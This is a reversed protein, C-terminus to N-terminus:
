RARACSSSRPAFAREAAAGRDRGHHDALHRQRHRARYDARRDVDRVDLGGTVTLVTIIRFSWGPAYVVSGGGPAQIHELSVAIMLGQVVSLVVTGYRTYQSIKRRGAEGEKYLEDLYPWRSRSCTSSSRSRFTPCSAWRSFRFGSWRAARSCISGDSCRARRRTSSRRRAGARRNGAHARSRGVRYVVLMVATFWLRRRLEPIRSANSFGDLMLSQTRGRNVGGSRRGGRDEREREVFVCAGPDDDTGGARRRRAGQGQRAARIIGREAMLAPDITDVGLAALRKLNVVVFGERRDEAKQLRRFGRKPVRRKLPMQGGEYGPPTNGGSRSGSARIAADRPRAAARLRNRPRGTAHAVRRVRPRSSDYTSEIAM